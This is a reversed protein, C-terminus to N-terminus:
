QFQIVQRYIFGDICIRSGKIIDISEDFIFFPSLLDFFFFPLFGFLDIVEVKLHFLNWRSKSAIIFPIPLLADIQVVSQKQFFEFLQKSEALFQFASACGKYTIWGFSVIDDDFRM